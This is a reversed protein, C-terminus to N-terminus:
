RLQLGPITRGLNAEAYNIHGGTANVPGPTYVAGNVTGNITATTTVYVLGNVTSGAAVTTLDGAVIDGAIPDPSQVVVDDYTFLLGDNIAIGSGSVTFDWRCILRVSGTVTLNSNLDITNTAVIAGPGNVSTLLAGGGLRVYGNVLLTSGALDLTGSNMTYNGVPVAYAQGMLNDYYSTGLSPLTPAPSPPSAVVFTSGSVTGVPYVLGGTVSSTGDCSFAGSAFVDGQVQTGTSLTTNGGAFIAWLPRAPPVAVATRVTPAAETRTAPLDLLFDVFRIEVPSAPVTTGDSRYAAFTLGIIPGAVRADTVAHTSLNEKRQRVYGLSPDGADPDFYLRERYRTGGADVLDFEIQGHAEASSSCYVFRRASRLERSLFLAAATGTNRVDSDAQGAREARDFAVIAPLAISMIIALITTSVLVEPLTLGSARPGQATTPRAQRHRHLRQTHHFAAVHM